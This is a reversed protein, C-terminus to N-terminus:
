ISRAHTDRPGHQSSPAATPAPPNHLRGHPEERGIRGWALELRRGVDRRNLMGALREGDLVPVQGIDNQALRAFADALRENPTAVALVNRPRMVQDVRTSSWAERLVRRVDSLCVLGLLKGDRVVPLAREDFPIFSAHVLDALSLDPPVVAGDRRMVEAVTHGALADDIALRRYSQTAAGHLFWGILALWLGSALGTGFFVVHAGFTMAFGMVIFLWGFVQGITAVRRTSLRLDGSIGWFISRLVRGGDLPFAPILNFLGIGINVPGLWAFLTGIPGLRAVGNLATPADEVSVATSALALAFFWVGLAISAAPGAIAMWFEARPSAPEQEINSVGGFLFLTISRVRLNYRRAVLSHALEHFLICGFFVLSAALAVAISEVPPWDPHLGPFMASLNWTLLVFIVLWSADIRIDIGFLKGLHFAHM